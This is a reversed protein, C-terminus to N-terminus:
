ISQIDAIEKMLSAIRRAKFGEVDSLCGMMKASAEDLGADAAFIDPICCRYIDVSTNGTLWISISLSRGGSLNYLGSLTEREKVAKAAEECMGAAKCLTQAQENTYDM